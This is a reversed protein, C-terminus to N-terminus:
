YYVISRYHVERPIFATNGRFFKPDQLSMTKRIWNGHSDYEYRELWKGTPSYTQLTQSINGNSDYWRAIESSFPWLAVGLYRAVAPCLDDCGWESFREVCVRHGSEDYEATEIHYREGELFQGNTEDVLTGEWIVSKVKGKLRDPDSLNPSHVAFGVLYGGLIGGFVIKLIKRARKRMPNIAM